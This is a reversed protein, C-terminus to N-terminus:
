IDKLFYHATGCILVIYRVNKELMFKISRVMAEVIEDYSENFLLARTRSPMTFDNDFYIHPYDRECDSKFIELFNRYFDLTAYGGFGGLAGISETYM